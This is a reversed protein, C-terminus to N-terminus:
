FYQEIKYRRLKIEEALQGENEIDNEFIMACRCAGKRFHCDSGATGFIGLIEAYAKAVHNNAIHKPHGNMIELGDTRQNLMFRKVGRKERCPHAQVIVGGAKHCSSKLKSFRRTNLLNRNYTFSEDVGLILYDAGSYNHEIGFFTKLGIASGESQALHYADIFAKPDRGVKFHNTIVIADYGADKYMRVTDRSSMKGCNAPAELTHVHTDIKM